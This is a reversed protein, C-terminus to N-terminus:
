IAFRFRTKTAMVLSSLYMDLTAAWFSLRIPLDRPRLSPLITKLIIGNYRECQSNRAPHCPSMRRSAMGRTVLFTQLESSMFQARWDTHVYASAGFLSFLSALCKDVTNVIMDTRATSYGKDFAKKIPQFFRPKLKACAKYSSTVRRVDEMTFSLNESRVFHFLWRMGSHSLGEHLLRLSKGSSFATSACEQLLTRPCMRFARVICSTMSIAQCSSEGVFSRTM